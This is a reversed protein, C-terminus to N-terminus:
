WRAHHGRMDLHTFSRYEGVGSNWFMKDCYKFVEYPSVGEVHFDAALGYLHKSRPKGGVVKNHEPSRYGSHIILNRGGFHSRIKELACVLEESVLVMDDDYAAFEGVRFHPSLKVDSDVAKSFVEIRGYM